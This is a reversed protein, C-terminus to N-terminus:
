KYISDAMRAAYVANKVNHVRIIDAGSAIAATHAAVTAADRERPAEGGGFFATVRKRSAAILVPCESIRLVGVNKLIELDQQRTKGFGIGPDFCLNECPVGLAQARFLCDSFFTKVAGTVSGPYEIESESSGEGTHMLIWGANHKKVLRAMDDRFVGSTDNIIVAGHELAYEAVELSRTDVSVPVRLRGKLIELVPSLRSLETDSGTYGAGPATSVAGADIIDAGDRQMDVAHALSSSLKDWMGGDSFSDPTVNLIGMVYTKKGLPLLFDGCRFDAM